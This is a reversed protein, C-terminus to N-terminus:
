LGDDDGRSEKQPSPSLPSIYRLTEGTGACARSANESSSVAGIMLAGPYWNVFLEKPPKPKM